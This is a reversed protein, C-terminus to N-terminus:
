NRAQTGALSGPPVRLSLILTQTRPTLEPCCRASLHTESGAAACHLSISLHPHLSRANTCSPCGQRGATWPSALLPSHSLPQVAAVFANEVGTFAPTVVETRCPLFRPESLALLRSQTVCSNPSPLLLFPTEKKKKLTQSESQQSHAPRNVSSHVPESTPLSQGM